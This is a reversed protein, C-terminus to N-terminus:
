ETLLSAENQSILIKDQASENNTNLKSQNAIKKM